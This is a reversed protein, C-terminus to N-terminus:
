EVAYSDTSVEHSALVAITALICLWASPEFEAIAKNLLLLARSRHYIVQHDNIPKKIQRLALDSAAIMCLAHGLAPFKEAIRLIQNSERQETEPTNLGGRERDVDIAFPFAASGPRQVIISIMYLPNTSGFSASYGSGPILLTSSIIVSLSPSKCHSILESASQELEVSWRPRVPGSSSTPRSSSVSVNSVSQVSKRKSRNRSMTPPPSSDSATKPARSGEAQSPDWESLSGPGLSAQSFLHQVSQVHEASVQSPTRNRSQSAEISRRRKVEKSFNKMVQTRVLKRAERSRSQAPNSVNFFTLEQPTVTAAPDSAGQLSGPPHSGSAAVYTLMRCYFEPSSVGLRCALEGDSQKPALPKYRRKGKESQSSSTSRSTDRGAESKLSDRRWHSM